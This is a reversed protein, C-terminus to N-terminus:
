PSGDIPEYIAMQIDEPPSGSVENGMGLFRRLLIYELTYYISLTESLIWIVVPLRKQLLLIVSRHNSASTSGLPTFGNLLNLKDASCGLCVILLHAYWLLRNVTYTTNM